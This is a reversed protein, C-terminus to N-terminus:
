SLCASFVMKVANCFLSNEDAGLFLAHIVHSRGRRRWTGISFCFVGVGRRRRGDRGALFGFAFGVGFVLGFAVRAHVLMEPMLGKTPWAVHAGVPM